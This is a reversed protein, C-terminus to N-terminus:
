TVAYQKVIGTQQDGNRWVFNVHRKPLGDRGVEDADFVYMPPFGTRPDYAEAGVDFTRGNARRYRFTLSPAGVSWSRTLKSYVATPTAILKVLVADRPLGIPFVIRFPVLAQAERLSVERSVM